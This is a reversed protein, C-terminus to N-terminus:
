QVVRVSLLCGRGGSWPLTMGSHTQKMNRLVELCVGFFDYLVYIEHVSVFVNLPIYKHM